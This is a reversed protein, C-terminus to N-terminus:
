FLVDNVELVTRDDKFRKLENMFNNYAKNSEYGNVSGEVVIFDMLKHKAEKIPKIQDNILAIAKATDNSIWYLTDDVDRVGFMDTESDYCTLRIDNDIIYVEFLGFDFNDCDSEICEDLLDILEILSYENFDKM